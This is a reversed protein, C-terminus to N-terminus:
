LFRAMQIAELVLAPPFEADTYSLTSRFVMLGEPESLIFQGQPVLLNLMHLALATDAAVGPEVTFPLAVTLQLLVPETEAAEAIPDSLSELLEDPYMGHLMYNRGAQDVHILCFLESVRGTGDAPTVWARYGAQEAADAYPQLLSQM